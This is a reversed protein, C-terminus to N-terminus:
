GEGLLYLQSSTHNEAESLALVAISQGLNPCPRYERDSLWSRKVLEGM